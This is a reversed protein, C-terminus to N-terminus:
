PKCRTGLDSLDVVRVQRGVNLFVLLARPREGLLCEVAEVYRRVQRDYKKAIIHAKLDDTARLEDTKFEVVTWRGDARYLLDIIGSHPGEALEVSYPLEHHREAAALKAYLPHQQFRALLRRAESMAEAIEGHDTLGAELAYPFVFVEFDPQDPFRWHALAIHALKGVVRAPPGQQPHPIVRWEHDPSEQERRRTKEDADDSLPVYFPELLDPTFPTDSEEAAVMTPREGSELVAALEAQEPSLPAAQPPHITCTLNGDPWTLPVPQAAPPLADLHAKELGAQTGLWALWGALTLSGDRKLKTHGSILLKERARTAAVYLLRKSEAEEMAAQRLAALRHHAPRAKSKSDQLNLAVGRAPEVIVMGTRGGGRHAADAIVVVPFELGKAKHVTMLQVAGIAEIPAESERAAVDRLATVYELFEAVSVLGSRHADALLKDVNRRLRDGGPTLRLAARYHTADLLAKLVQAVPVRGVLGHLRAVTERAFTARAADPEGLHSLDAELADWLGRRTEGNGWRLLYLAADTLGFAPSRLIGALALDDTPDAIAALANLLDRVEPRNYFGRGAVTVFPIGARELADEYVPFATSARFLLAVDSWTLGETEHLEHLRAALADAAARRGESATQAIGLHFEIFPPAVGDRPAQRHARLPAFPVEYPRAPDESEGLIPALLANTASVLREHARFTLDLDSHRGGTAVVDTQVRRFVTVDAGRFRYISQKADGVIFLRGREERPLSPPFASLAYIIQRQRENTDQFEDVLIAKVERQWRTRVAANGTLLGAARSELDDFDLAEPSAKLRSYEQRARDFLRCLQPLLEAAQRDIAWDAPKDSSSKGGLWPQLTADYAARLSAVAEKARGRKGAGGKLHTRRLAFLSALTTKWDGAARAAEIEFWADLLDKVTPALRPGADRLLHGDQCLATLDAIAAQVEPANGYATVAEAVDREWVDLPDDGLSFFAAGADLRHVLLSSVADFLQYETLPGFLQAAGPDDAAWALASEVARARRLAAINEDLVGFAPDLAAEAPHIRLIEACLSHITGIRAADLRAFTERWAERDLVNEQSPWEQITQRIRTRMERAAKETFTIAVISRLPLGAELLRLYRGVLTRTKGSGAGATVAVNTDTVTVAETQAPTFQMLSLISPMNVSAREKNREKSSQSQTMTTM